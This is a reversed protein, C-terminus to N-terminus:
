IFILEGIIQVIGQKLYGEHVVTIQRKLKTHKYLNAYKCITEYQPKNLLKQFKSLFVGAQIVSKVLTDKVHNSGILRKIIFAVTNVKTAGISNTGHQRYLITPHDMVAIQGFCSATLSMWWDHQFIGENNLSDDVIDNLAKNWLMTCGTANNQILLHRLDTIQPRLARYTFFSDGLVNLNEDVVKLDTHVLTPIRNKSEVKQMKSLTVEIKEELWVDDQDCFMFYQFSYYEKVHLLLAAFNANSGHKDSPNNVRIIKEAHSECYRDITESTGDTSGDDRIFLVWNLYTQNLISDIQESLYKEGNYTALMVAVTNKDIRM